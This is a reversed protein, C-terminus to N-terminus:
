KAVYPTTSVPKSRLTTTVDQTLTGYEYDLAFEGFEPIALASKFIAKTQETLKLNGLVEHLTFSMPFKYKLALPTQVTFDYIPTLKSTTGGAPTTDALVKKNVYDITFNSLTLGYTNGTEDDDRSFYLASGSATGSVINLKSGIVIKTIPFGVAVPTVTGNTEGPTGAQAVYGTGRPAATLKVLDFAVLNDQPFAQVSNAVLFNTPLSLNAQAAVPALSVLVAAAIPATIRSM